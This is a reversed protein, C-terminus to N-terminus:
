GLLNADPFSLLRHEASRDGIEALAVGNFQLGRVALCSRGESAFLRLRRIFIVHELAYGPGGLSHARLKALREGGNLLERRTYSIPVHCSAGKFGEFRKM